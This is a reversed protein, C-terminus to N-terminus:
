REVENRTWTYFSHVGSADFHTVQYNLAFLQEAVQRFAVRWEHALDPQEDLVVDLRRPIETIVATPRVTGPIVQLNPKLTDTLALWVPQDLDAGLVPGPTPSCGAVPWVAVFRDTPLARNVVDNDLVGYVNIKYEAISAGLKNLNFHANRSVLPDFTWAITQYGIEAAIRRQEAKLRYGIGQHLYEPLVATEHSWLVWEGRYLAPFSLLFGIPQNGTRALLVVGGYTAHVTMQAVSCGDGPGWVQEVVTSGAQCQEVTTVREINIDQM